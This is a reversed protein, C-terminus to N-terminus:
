DSLSGIKNSSDFLYSIHLSAHLQLREANNIIEKSGIQSGKQM